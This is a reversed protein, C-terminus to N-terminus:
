ILIAGYAVLPVEQPRLHHVLALLAVHGRAAQGPLAQLPAPPAAARGLAGVDVAPVRRLQSPVEAM